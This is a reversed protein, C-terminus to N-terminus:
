DHGDGNLRDQIDNLVRFYSRVAESEAGLIDSGSYAKCAIDVGRTSTKVEVSSTRDAASGLRANLHKVEALTEELLQAVSILVQLESRVTGLGANRCVPCGDTHSLNDTLTM